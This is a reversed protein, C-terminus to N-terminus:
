RAAHIPRPVGVRLAAERTEHLELVQDVGALGMIRRVDGGPCAVLLRAGRRRMTGQCRLLISVGAASIFDAGTLDIVVTPPGGDVAAEFAAWLSPGTALDVDGHVGICPVGCDHSHEILFPPVPHERDPDLL